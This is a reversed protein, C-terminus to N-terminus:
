TTRDSTGSKIPESIRDPCLRIRFKASLDRYFRPFSQFIVIVNEFSWTIRCHDVRWIHKEFSSICRRWRRKRRGYVSWKEAKSRRARGVSASEDKLRMIEYISFDQSDQRGKETLGNRNRLDIDGSLTINFWSNAKSSIHNSPAGTSCMTSVCLFYRLATFIRYSFPTRYRTHTKWPTHMRTRRISSRSEWQHPRKTRSLSRWPRTPLAHFKTADKKRTTACIWRDPHANGHVVEAPRWSWESGSHKM